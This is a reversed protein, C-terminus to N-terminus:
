DKNEVAFDDGPIRDKARSPIAVVVCGFLGVWFSHSPQARQINNLGLKGFIICGVVMRRSVLLSSTHKSSGHVRMFLACRIYLYLYIYVYIHTYMYVYGYIYIYLSLSFFLSVCVCMCVCVCVRACVPQHPTRELISWWVCVRVCVCVCVCVRARVCVRVCARVRSRACVRACGCM